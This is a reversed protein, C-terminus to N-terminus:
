GGTRRVGGGEGIGGEGAWTQTLSAGKTFWQADQDRARPRPTIGDGKQHEPAMPFPSTSAM